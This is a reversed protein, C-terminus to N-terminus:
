RFLPEGRPSGISFPSLNIGQGPSALQKRSIRFYSVLGPPRPPALGVRLPARFPVCIFIM